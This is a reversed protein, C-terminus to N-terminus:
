AFRARLWDRVCFVEELCMSHQMDYEAWEAVHGATELREFAARGLFHPVIPDLRGHCFLFPTQRSADSREAEFHAPLVLYGRLPMKGDRWGLFDLSEWDLTDFNKPLNLKAAESRSANIFSSRVQQATLKQM